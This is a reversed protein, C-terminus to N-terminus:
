ILLDIPSGGHIEASRDVSEHSGGLVLKASIVNLKLNTDNGQKKFPEVQVEGKIM